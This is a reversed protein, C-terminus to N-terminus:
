CCPTDRQRALTRVKKETAVTNTAFQHTRTGTTVELVNQVRFATKVLVHTM